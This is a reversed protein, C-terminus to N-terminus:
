YEEIVIIGPMGPSRNGTDQDYAGGSSYAGSAQNPAPAGNAGGWYSPGGAHDGGGGRSQPGGGQINIDGGTQVSGIGSHDDGTPGGGASLSVTGDDFTSAEGAASNGGGAGVTYTATPNTIAATKICTGGAFGPSTLNSGGGGGSAIVKYWKRGVEFTHTQATVPNTYTTVTPLGGSLNSLDEDTSTVPGNINPFTTKLVHKILRLHDDGQSVNDTGPPNTAVLDSIYDGTELPM